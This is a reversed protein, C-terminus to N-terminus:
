PAASGGLCAPCRSQRGAGSILESSSSSLLGPRYRSVSELLSEEESPLEISPLRFKKPVSGSGLTFMGRFYGQSRGFCVRTLRHM